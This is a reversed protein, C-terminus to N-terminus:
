YYSKECNIALICWLIVFYIEAALVFLLHGCLSYANNFTIFPDLATGERVRGMPVYNISARRVETGWSTGSLIHIGGQDLSSYHTVWIHTKSM